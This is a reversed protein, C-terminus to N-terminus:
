PQTYKKSISKPVELKEFNEEVFFDPDHGAVTLWPGKGDSGKLKPASPEPLLKKINRRDLGESNKVDSNFMMGLKAYAAEYQELTCDESLVDSPQFDTAHPNPWLDTFEQNGINSDLFLLGDVVGPYKDAYLRAIHVGISAAVFVLRSSNPAVVQLLEHLDRVVDNVDHGYGPEKGPQQDTPDRSKTDGQGYRDYTLIKPKISTASEQLLSIAANWSMSPLGLGNIFVVLPSDASQSSEFLKYALPAQPKSPIAAFSM